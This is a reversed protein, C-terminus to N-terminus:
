KTDVKAGAPLKVVVKTDKGPGSEEDEWIALAVITDGQVKITYGQKLGACYVGLDTYEGNKPALKGAPKKADAGMGTITGYDIQKKTGKSDELAIRLKTESCDGNDPQAVGTVTLKIPSVLDTADLPKDKGDEWGRETWKQEERVIRLGADTKKLDLVKEGHDAFKGSRWRQVFTVTVTDGDVKKKVDDTAVEQKKKFLKERDTKWGALDLTKEVGGGTRRVGKFSADYLALYDDLKGDNQAAKWSALLKDAEAGLDVPAASPKAKPASSGETTTPTSTAEDKKKEPCGMVVCSLLLPLVIRM